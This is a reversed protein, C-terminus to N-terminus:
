YRSVSNGTIGVSGVSHLGSLGNLPLHACWAFYVCHLSSPVNFSEVVDNALIKAASLIKANEDESLLM